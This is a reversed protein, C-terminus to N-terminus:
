KEFSNGCFPCNYIERTTHHLGDTMHLRIEPMSEITLKMGEYNALELVEGKLITKCGMCNKGMILVGKKYDLLHLM